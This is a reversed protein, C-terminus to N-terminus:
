LGLFDFALKKEELLEDHTRTMKGRSFESIELGQVIKYKGDAITVPFSYIVGPAIDYSGDSAVAM